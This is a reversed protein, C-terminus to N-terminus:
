ICHIGPKYPLNTRLFLGLREQTGGGLGIIIQTPRKNKLLKLLAYDAISGGEYKPAIYTQNEDCLIGQKKLWELTRVASDKSPMIFFPREKPSRVRISHLLLILYELGSVRGINDRRLLNWAMVM